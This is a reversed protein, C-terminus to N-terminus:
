LVWPGAKGLYSNKLQLLSFLISGTARGLARLGDSQLLCKSQSEHGPSGLAKLWAEFHTAMSWGM